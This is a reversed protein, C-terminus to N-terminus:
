RELGLRYVLPTSPPTTLGNMSCRSRLMRKRGRESKELFKPVLAHTKHSSKPITILLYSELFLM